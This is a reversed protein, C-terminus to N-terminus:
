EQISPPEKREARAAYADIWKDIHGIPVIHLTGDVKDVFMPRNGVVGDLPFRTETYRQTNYPFLWGRPHASVFKDFLVLDERGFERCLIKLHSEAKDRAEEFTLM